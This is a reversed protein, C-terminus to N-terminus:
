LFRCSVSFSVNFRVYAKVSIINARCIDRVLRLFEKIGPLMGKSVQSPCCCINVWMVLIKLPLLLFARGCRQTIHAAVLVFFFKTKDEGCFWM